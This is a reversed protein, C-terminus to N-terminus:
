TKTGLRNDRKYECASCVNKDNFNIVEKKTTTSNLFEITSSPRQNSIVCESCFNVDQPLGFYSKHKNNKKM